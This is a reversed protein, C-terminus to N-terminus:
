SPADPGRLARPTTQFRTTSMFSRARRSITRPSPPVAFPTVRSDPYSMEVAESTM